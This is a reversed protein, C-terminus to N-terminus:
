KAAEVQVRAGFNAQGASFGFTSVAPDPLVADGRTLGNLGPWGDHIWVVGAPIRDTVQARAAFSGSANFMRIAAGDAISRSAADDPSIWLRPEPEKRALSPLARGSDYFAHFHTLTRGHTLTLPPPPTEVAEDPTWDPLEPLGLTAARESRFEIKRSPTDFVLGPNAVHSIDLAGIGEQARLAAVTAHRTAPHDLVADIVAEDSAWPWYGDLHLRAALEQLLRFVSRAEGAPQLAQEMLYVHTDTMKCGLEELWATSPLVIDAHRRATDNMFLDYSVVLRARSLGESVASSDAFSSMMNTGLLLVNDIRGDLLATTFASMQSPLPAPGTRREPAAISATARGHTAGGHRPGFGAGATGVNGTLGPLCAIARSAQWGNDGKHMSSGGLVIMAPRTTAYLRALAVIRDSSIGTIAAAWDPPFQQVHRALEDFGVTHRAVFGADHLRETCIVNLLALALAADTGPRILFVDDSKAAAETHRVDITILRAGRRKALSLHRATNPQSALNAGWLVILQAHAGMDEKSHVELMGTLGLGFAGLGWCIMTPNLFQSGHFSAFRAMLQANIRTGYNTAFTGHGPVLATRAPPSEAISGAIRDLAEDWGIRHFEDSRRDRAMPTLLRLPNGIIERSAQGRVCLFGQSDPNGPDGEVSRLQGDDVRVLMGCLTPHCNMPCMTRVLKSPTGTM